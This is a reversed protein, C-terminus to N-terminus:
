RIPVTIGGNGSPAAKVEVPIDIFNGSGGQGLFYFVRIKTTGPATARITVPNGARYVGDPLADVVAVAPDFSTWKWEKGLTELVGKDDSGTAQVSATEGVTLSLRTPNVAIKTVIRETSPYKRESGEAVGEPHNFQNVGSGLSGFTEGSSTIILRSNGTDAVVGGLISYEYGAAQSLGLNGHAEFYGGKYAFGGQYALTVVRNNGTDLVDFYDALARVRTPQNFEGENSGPTKDPRGYSRQGEARMDARTLVIRNNGQDAIFINEYRLGNREDALVYSVGTPANLTGLKGVTRLERYGAGSMNDFHVIRNNGTDAIFLEGSPSFTLDRPEKFGQALEAWNDGAMNDFRCIRNNGTDVVYIRYDPGIKVSSPRNFQGHGNGQTGFTETPGQFIPSPDVARGIRV